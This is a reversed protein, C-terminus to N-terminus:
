SWWSCGSVERVERERKEQAEKWRMGVVKTYAEGILSLVYMKGETAEKTGQAQIRRDSCEVLYSHVDGRRSRRRKRRRPYVCMCMCVCVCACVPINNCRNGETM